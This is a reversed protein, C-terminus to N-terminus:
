LVPRRDKWDHAQEYAHGARFLTSEEFARGILQLGVPLGAIITSLWWRGTPDYIQAWRAVGTNTKLLYVTALVLALTILVDRSVSWPTAPKQKPARPSKEELAANIEM